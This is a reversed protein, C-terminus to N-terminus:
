ILGQYITQNLFSWRSNSKSKQWYNVFGFANKASNFTLLLPPCGLQLLLDTSTILLTAFSSFVSQGDDRGTVEQPLLPASCFISESLGPRLESTKIWTTIPRIFVIYCSKTILFFAALCELTVNRVGVVGWELYILCSIYLLCYLHLM